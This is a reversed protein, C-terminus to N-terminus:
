PCPYPHQKHIDEIKNLIHDSLTIDISGINTKLQDLNTAGIINATIFRRSNVYALAMQSPDLGNERALEVYQKTLSHALDTTYRVFRTFLSFRSGAPVEGDLYKGSLMGMALPSYALM